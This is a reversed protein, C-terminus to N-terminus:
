RGGVLANRVDRSARVDRETAYAEHNEEISDLDYRYNVMMGASRSLGTPSLNAQPNIRELLAGNGLHFRAVPDLPSGDDRKAELFYAAALATTVDTHRRRTAPEDYWDETAVLDLLEAAPANGGDAMLRLWSTFGPAPSLTVFTEINPLDRALDAAVQKILFHGFSVGRLGAQCNSISYFVATDADEAALPHRHDGLLGGITDPVGLTLAVEVFVLPEGPMAPHFFAFCRRDAPQLRSRLDTWDTIEHVAEYDIIKELVDAPSSWTIPQLVLFGRNFWSTLLHQFDADIRQLDPETPLFGLLDARMHVLAATGGPAQNLRRLLEQRPPEVAANVAALAEASGERVFREAAAMVQSPDPDFHDALDHFFRRRGAETLRQYHELVLAALAVGSAEGRNSMLAHCLDTITDDLLEDAM